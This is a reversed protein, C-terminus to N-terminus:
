FFLKLQGGHFRLLLGLGFILGVGVFRNLREPDSTMLDKTVKSTFIRLYDVLSNNEHM